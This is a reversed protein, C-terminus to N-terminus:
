KKLSRIMKAGVVAPVIFFLVVFLVSYLVERKDKERYVRLEVCGGM